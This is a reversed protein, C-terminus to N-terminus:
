FIFGSIGCDTIGKKAPVAVKRSSMKATTKSEFKLVEKIALYLPKKSNNNANAIVNEVLM